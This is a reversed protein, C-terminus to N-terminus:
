KIKECRIVGRDNFSSGRFPRDPGQDKFYTSILEGPTRDVDIYLYVKVSMTVSYGDLLPFDELLRM